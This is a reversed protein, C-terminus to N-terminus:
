NTVGLFTPLKHWPVFLNLLQFTKVYLVYLLSRPDSERVLLRLAFCGIVTLALVFGLLHAPWSAKPALVTSGVFMVFALLHVAGRQVRVWKSDAAAWALVVDLGWWAALFFDPGPNNVVKEPDSAVGEHSHFIAAFDGGF